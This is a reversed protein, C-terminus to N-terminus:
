SVEAAAETDPVEPSAADFWADKFEIREPRHGNKSTGRMAINSTLAIIADAM